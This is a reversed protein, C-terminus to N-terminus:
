CIIRLENLIVIIVFLMQRFNGSKELMKQQNRQIKGTQEFNGSHFIGEWQEPKRTRNPVMNRATKLGFSLNAGGGKSNAGM